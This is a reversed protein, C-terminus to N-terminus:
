RSKNKSKDLMIKTNKISYQLPTSRKLKDFYESIISKLINFRRSFFYEAYIEIEFMQACNSKKM